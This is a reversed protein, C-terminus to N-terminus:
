TRSHTQFYQNVQKESRQVVYIRRTRHTRQTHNTYSTYGDPDLTTISFGDPDQLIEFPGNLGDIM